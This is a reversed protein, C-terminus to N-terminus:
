SLARWTNFGSTFANSVGGWWTASANANGTARALDGNRQMAVSRMRAEALMVDADVEANKRLTDARQDWELRTVDAREKGEELMSYLTEAGRRKMFQRQRYGENVQAVYFHMPTGSNVSIGSASAYARITGARWDELRRHQYVDEELQTGYLDANRLASRLTAFANAAGVLEVAQANYEGTDLRRQANDDTLAILDRANADWADGSLRGGKKQAEAAKATGMLSTAGSFLGLILPLSM